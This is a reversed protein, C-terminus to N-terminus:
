FPVLLQLVIDRVSDFSVGGGSVLFVTVLLPTLVIGILNSFSASCIAAAVNGRAVSTFAISSQVTSPLACLYVVGLWLSDELFHPFVARLAVGVLPFLVFTCALTLLQLRWHTMGALVASRQLRVGQLFFLLTIAATKFLE